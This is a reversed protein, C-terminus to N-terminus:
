YNFLKCYLIGGLVSVKIIELTLGLPYQVGTTGLWLDFALLILAVVVITSFCGTEKYIHNGSITWGGLGFIKGGILGIALLMILYGM